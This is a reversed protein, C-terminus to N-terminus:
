KEEGTGKEWYCEGCERLTNMINEIIPPHINSDKGCASCNWKTDRWLGGVMTLKMEECSPCITPGPLMCILSHMMYGCDRKCESM